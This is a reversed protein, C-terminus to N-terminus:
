NQTYFAIIDIFAFDAESQSPYYDSWRGSRLADFKEGNAASRAREIIQADELTQPANGDYSGVNTNGRMQAWLSSALEQRYEIPKDNYVDGTMTMYRESSYLEVCNRRRGAPIAAKIIIHL